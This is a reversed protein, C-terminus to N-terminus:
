HEASFAQFHPEKHKIVKSKLGTQNENIPLVEDIAFRDKVM